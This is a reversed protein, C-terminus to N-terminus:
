DVIWQEVMWVRMVQENIVVMLVSPLVAESLLPLLTPPNDFSIVILFEPVSGGM